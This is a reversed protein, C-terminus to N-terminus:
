NSSSSTPLFDIGEGTLRNIEIRAAALERQLDLHIDRTEVWTRQADLLDLIDIEGVKYAKSISEYVNKVAPLVETELAIRM